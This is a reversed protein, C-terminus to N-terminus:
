SYHNTPNDSSVGISKIGEEVQIEARESSRAKKIELVSHIRLFTLFMKLAQV